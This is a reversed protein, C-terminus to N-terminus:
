SFKTSSWSLKQRILKLIRMLKKCFLAHIDYPFNVHLDSRHTLPNSLKWKGILCRHLFALSIAAPQLLTWHILFWKKTACLYGGDLERWFKVWILYLIQLKILWQLPSQEAQLIRTAGVFIQNLCTSLTVINCM